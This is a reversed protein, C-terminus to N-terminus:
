ELDYKLYQWIMLRVIKQNIPNKKTEYTLILNEGPFIGNQEYLAIKQLANEVYGSDDMMGLHEWYIEKRKRINLVTFDPYVRGWEKLQIPYEYRYPIGEGYLIDAIIVESKSRVREGRATYIEPMDEDFEKGQYTVNEWNYIYQEEPEIIPNVLKRREKHLKEYLQEINTAPYDSLYKRIVNLEKEIGSLVKQDYDKQALKQALGVDKECIYTGNFDKPNNRQYYQTKKGRVSLRLSGEPAMKLAKEKEQKLRLLYKERAELLNKIQEM